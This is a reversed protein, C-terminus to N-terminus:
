QAQPEGWQILGKHRGWKTTPGKITPNFTGATEYSIATGLDVPDVGLEKAATRIAGALEGSGQAPAPATGRPAQTRAPQRPRTISRTAVRIPEDPRATPTPAPASAVMPPPTPDSLQQPNRKYAQQVMAATLRERPDENPARAVFPTEAGAKVGPPFKAPKPAEQNMSIRTGTVDADPMPGPPLGGVRSQDKAAIIADRLRSIDERAEQAAHRQAQLGQTRRLREKAEKLAFALKGYSEGM